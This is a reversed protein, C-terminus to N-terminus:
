VVREPARGFLGQPRVLLLLLLLVFLIYLAWTGGLYRSSISEILGITLGGILAGPFSGFGGLTLALFSKITVVTAVTAVALTQTGVFQGLMGAMAGAAIMAGMSLLRTNIGRLAAAQRDAAAAIAVVGRLTYRSWAWLAVTVAIALAILLLGDPTVRGGGIDIVESSIVDNVSHVDDGWILVVVGIIATSAGITTVLEGHQGRGIVPRITSFELVLGILGGIVASVILVVIFPQGSQVGIEYALFTGFTVVAAHAFNFAGSAILVIDYGLAVLAYISGLVLGALIVTLM